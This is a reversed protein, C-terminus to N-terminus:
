FQFYIFAQLEATIFQYIVFVVAVVAALQVYQPMVAFNVRYWQKTKSPLWHIIMGIAFLLFVKWYESVIQPIISTNWSSGIQHVMSSATQIAIRNSEAPDLNSGSRFFLRTFSIFVFTLLISWARNSYYFSKGNSLRGVIFGLWTGFLIIGSWVMAINLWPAKLFTNIILFSLFICFVLIAKHVSQLKKWTKYFVIGSGNLGGWIMFNWSAGHWLGGLLMTVMLNLNTIINKRLKPAYYAVVFLTIALLCIVVAPWIRGSLMIVFLSIVAVFFYTGFSSKRNGGLPIYLYDRLWTSLSIHWRKWFDGPNTAKYPSN